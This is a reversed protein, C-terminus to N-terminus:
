PGNSKEPNLMENIMKMKLAKAAAVNARAAAITEDCRTLIGAIQRQEPLPPYPIELNKVRGVSLTYLGSTSMSQKLIVNQGFSSNLYYNLFDSNLKAKDPRIRIVHNQHICDQLEGRFIATRGVENKNGNGEVTLVDGPLLRLDELEKHTVEFYRPEDFNIYNRQVHIVTLYRAPNDKPAREQTKQLGGKVECIEGIKINNTSRKFNKSSIKSSDGFLENTMVQKAREAATVFREGKM